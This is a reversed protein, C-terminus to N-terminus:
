NHYICFNYDGKGLLLMKDPGKQKDEYFIHMTPAEM